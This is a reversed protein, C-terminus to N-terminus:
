RRLKSLKNRVYENEPEFGYAREYHVLARRSQGLQEYVEGLSILCDSHNPDKDLAKTYYFQAAKLNGQRHYIVGLQYFVTPTHVKRIARKLEVKANEDLGQQFYIGGLKARVQLDFPKVRLYNALSTIAERHRGNIMDLDASRLLAKPHNPNIKLCEKLFQVARPSQNLRFFASSLNFYSEAHNPQLDLTKQFDEIAKELQNLKAYTLGLDHTAGVHYPNKRLVKKFQSIAIKYKKNTGAMWGFKYEADLADEESLGKDLKISSSKKKQGCGILSFAMLLLITLRFSTKFKFM